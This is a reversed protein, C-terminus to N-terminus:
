LLGTFDHHGGAGPPLPAVRLVASLPLIGYLHPFLAGGRSPEWKLAAGLAGADVAVLVLDSRGAFHRAATEAVQGADSFHIYGDALDVAAGAFVGAAEAAAWEQTGAIKYITDATM